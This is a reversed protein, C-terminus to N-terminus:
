NNYLKDQEGASLRSIELREKANFKYCEAELSLFINHSLPQEKMCVLYIKNRDIKVQGKCTM